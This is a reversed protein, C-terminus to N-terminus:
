GGERGTNDDWSKLQLRHQRFLVDLGNLGGQGAKTVDMDPSAM